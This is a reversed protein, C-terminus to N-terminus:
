GDSHKVEQGDWTLVVSGKDSERPLGDVADFKIAASLGQLGIDMVKQNWLAQKVDGDEVGVLFWMLPYRSKALSDRVGKTAERTSAFIGLVGDGQWGAPSGRFSGELERIHNPGAKTRLAKCQVVARFPRPLPPVANWTGILDIGYDLTGGVRTLDFGYRRLADLVM